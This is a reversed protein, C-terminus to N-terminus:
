NPGPASRIAFNDLAPSNQFYRPTIIGCAGGEKKPSGSEVARFRNRDGFPPPPDTFNSPISFLFPSPYIPVRESERGRLPNPWLGFSKRLASSYRDPGAHVSFRFQGVAPFKAFLAAFPRVSSRFIFSYFQWSPCFTAFCAVQNSRM